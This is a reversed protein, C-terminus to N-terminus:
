KPEWPAEKRSIEAAMGGVASSALARYHAHLLLLLERSEGHRPCGSLEGINGAFGSNAVSDLDLAERRPGAAAPDDGRLSRGCHIRRRHWLAKRVGCRCCSRLGEQLSPVLPAKCSPKPLAGCLVHGCHQRRCPGDRPLSGFFTNFTAADPGKATWSQM